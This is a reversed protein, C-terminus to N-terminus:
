CFLHMGSPKDLAIGAFEGKAFSLEGIYCVKGRKTVDGHVYVVDGVALNDGTLGSDAYKLLNSINLEKM